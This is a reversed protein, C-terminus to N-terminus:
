FWKAEEVIPGMGPIPDLPVFGEPMKLTKFLEVPVSNRRHWEMIVDYNRCKKEISFDPFPLHQGDIWNYTVVDVHANCMLNQLLMYICHSSHIRFGLPPGTGNGFKPGYKAEYYYEYFLEMRLANLCHLQHVVDIQAIYADPGFGFSEPYKAATSADKGLKAVDDGHVVLTELPVLSEWAADVEPSPDQRYITPPIRDFLTGNM